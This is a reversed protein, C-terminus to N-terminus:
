MWNRVTHLFSNSQYPNYYQKGRVMILMGIICDLILLSTCNTWAMNMSLRQGNTFCRNIHMISFSSDTPNPTIATTRKISIDFHRYRERIIIKSNQSIYTISLVHAKEVEFYISRLKLRHITQVCMYHAKITQLIAQVTSHASKCTQGFRLLAKLDRKPDLREACCM